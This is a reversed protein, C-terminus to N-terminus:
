NDEPQSEGALLADLLPALRGATKAKFATEDVRIKAKIIDMATTTQLKMLAMDPKKKALKRTLVDRIVDVSQGTLEELEAAFGRTEAPELTGKSEDLIQLAKAM